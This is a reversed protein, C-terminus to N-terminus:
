VRSTNAVPMESSSVSAIARVTFSALSASHFAAPPWTASQSGIAVAQGSEACPQTRAPRTSSAPLPRGAQKAHRQAPFATRVPAVPKAPVVPAIRNPFLRPLSRRLARSSTRSRAAPGACSLVRAEMEDLRHRGEILSTPSKTRWRWTSAACHRSSAGDVSPAVTSCAEAIAVACGLTRTSALQGAYPRLGRRHARHAPDRDGRCCSVPWCAAPERRGRRREIRMVEALVADVQHQTPACTRARSGAAGSPASLRLHTGVDKKLGFVNGGPVRRFEVIEVISAPALVSGDVPAARKGIM